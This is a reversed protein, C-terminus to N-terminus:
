VIFFTLFYTPSGGLGFTWIGVSNSDFIICLLIKSYLYIISLNMHGDLTQLMLCTWLCRRFLSTYGLIMSFGLEWEMEYNWKMELGYFAPRHIEDKMEEDEDIRKM